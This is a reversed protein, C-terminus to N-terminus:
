CFNPHSPREYISQELFPIGGLILLPETGINKLFIQIHPDKM